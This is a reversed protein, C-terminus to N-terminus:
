IKRVYKAETYIVLALSENKLKSYYAALSAARELVANAIKNGAPNRIITHSGPAQRAHLWIDNKHVFRRLMEDNDKSSKELGFKWGMFILNDSLCVKKIKLM